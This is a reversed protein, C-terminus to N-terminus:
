ASDSPSALIYDGFYLSPFKSICMGNRARGSWNSVFGGVEEPTM